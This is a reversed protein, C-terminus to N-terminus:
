LDKELEIIRQELDKILKTTLEYKQKSVYGQSEILDDIQPKVKKEIHESIGSPMSIHLKKLEKDLISIIAEYILDKDSM